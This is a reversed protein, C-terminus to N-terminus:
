IKRFKNHVPPYYNVKRLLLPLLTNLIFSHSIFITQNQSDRLFISCIVESNISYCQSKARVLGSLGFYMYSQVTNRMGQLAQHNNDVHFCIKETIWKIANRAWQVGVKLKWSSTANGRKSQSTKNIQNEWKM